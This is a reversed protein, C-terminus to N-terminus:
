FSTKKIFEYPTIAEVESNCYDKVNYTIIYGAGVDKACKDQLCDEFDIFKGNEIAALIEEKPASAVDFIELIAKLYERRLKEDKKRFVYWLTSLTHFSIYGACEGAACKKIIANSGDLDKDDRQLLYNLIVNADILLVMNRM